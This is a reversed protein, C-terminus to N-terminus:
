QRTGGALQIGVRACAAKFAADAQEITMGGTEAGPRTAVGTGVGTVLPEQVNSAINIASKLGADLTQASEAIKQAETGTIGLASCGALIESVVLARKEQRTREEAIGQAKAAVIAAQSEREHEDAVALLEAALQEDTKVENAAGPSQSRGFLAAIRSRLSDSMQSNGKAPKKGAKPSKNLVASLADGREGISDIYGGSLAQRGVAVGGHAMKERVIKEDIGRNRAVSAVFVDFLDNVIDNLHATGPEDLPLEGVAKLPGSRIVTRKIGNGDEQATYDTHVMYVGISGVLGTENMFIEDAASAIWYAASAATGDINAIIPKQGRASYILDALAQTGDVQGGPSDIDLLIGEVNDDIIAAM